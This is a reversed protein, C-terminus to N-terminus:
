LVFDPIEITFPNPASNINIDVGEFINPQSSAFISGNASHFDDGGFINPESHGIM